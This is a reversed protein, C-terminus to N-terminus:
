NHLQSVLKFMWPVTTEDGLFEAFRQFNFVCFITTVVIVDYLKNYGAWVMILIDSISKILLGTGFGDNILM